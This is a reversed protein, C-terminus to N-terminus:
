YSQIAPRPHDTPLELPELDALQKRWYAMQEDLVEGSLWARQWIAYDAYQIPLPPLPSLQGCVYSQYLTTLERVLVGNSWGDTIIHHLTLLLVHERASLRLLATRLLPGTSLHMPYQAEQHALSRTEQERHDPLLGQLDIVPVVFHGSPHI